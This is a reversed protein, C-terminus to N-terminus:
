QATATSLPSESKETPSTMSDTPTPKQRRKKKVPEDPAGNLAVGLVAFAMTLNERPPRGKVYIEVKKMANVPTMGGGILGCRIVEAIDEVRCTGDVLRQHIVFPGADRAEQLMILEAWALRFTYEGDAWALTISADRSM